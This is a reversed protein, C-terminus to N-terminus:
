NAQGSGLRRTKDMNTNCQGIMEKLSDIVEDEEEKGEGELVSLAREFYSRASAYSHLKFLSKGVGELDLAIKSSLGLKKDVSLADMYSKKAAEVEGLSLMAGAGLRLSNAKEELNGESDNIKLAQAALKKGSLFDNQWLAIRSRLNYFSGKILCTGRRCYDLGADVSKAAEGSDGRDFLLLAKLYAAQALHHPAFSLGKSKLLYEAYELANEHDGMKRYTATLNLANVAISDMDDLSRSKNFAKLYEALAFNYDGEQYAGDGRNNLELAILHSESIGPGQRGSSCGSFSLVMPILLLAYFLLESLRNPLPSGTCSNNM